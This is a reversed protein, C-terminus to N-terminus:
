RSRGGCAGPRDESAALRGLREEVAHEEVGLLYSKERTPRKLNLMLSSRSTAPRRLLRQRRVVEETTM